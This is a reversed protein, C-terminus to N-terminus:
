KMEALAKAAAEHDPKLSLARKFADRAEATLGKGLYAQGLRYYADASPKRDCVLKFDAIAGEYDRGFGEPAQLRSIGRGLHGRINDPDLSLATEFEQMAGMGYKMMDMPNGGQTMNGMISGKWAHLEANNPDKALLSDVVNLAESYKKDNFLGQLFNMNVSQGSPAPKEAAPSGPAPPAQPPKAAGPGSAPKGGQLMPLMQLLTPLMQQFWSPKKEEVPLLEITVEDGRILLYGMAVAKGGLGAGFGMSAGGAGLGFKLRSFPIIVANGAQIPAGIVSESKFSDLMKELDALSDGLPSKAQGLLAVSPVALSVIMLLVILKTRM